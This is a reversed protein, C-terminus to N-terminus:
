EPFNDKQDAFNSQSSTKNLFIRKTLLITIVNVVFFVILMVLSMPSILSDRGDLIWLAASWFLAVILASAAGFIFIFNYKQIFKLPILNILFGNCLGTVFSPILLIFLGAAAPTVMLLGSEFPHSTTLLLALYFLVYDLIINAAFVFFVRPVHKLM